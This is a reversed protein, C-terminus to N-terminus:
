RPPASTQSSTLEALGAKAVIDRFREASNIYTAFGEPTRLGGILTGVDDRGLRFIRVTRALLPQRIGEGARCAM